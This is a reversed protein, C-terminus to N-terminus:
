RKVFSGRGKSAGDGFVMIYSEPFQKLTFKASSMLELLAGKGQVRRQSKQIQAQSGLSPIGSRYEMPRAPEKCHQM